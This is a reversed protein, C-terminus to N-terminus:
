GMAIAFSLDCAVSVNIAKRVTIAYVVTGTCVLVISCLLCVLMASLQTGMRWRLRLHPLGCRPTPLPPGPPRGKLGLRPSRGAPDGIALVIETECPTEEDLSMVRLVSRSTNLKANWQM